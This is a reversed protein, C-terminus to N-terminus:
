NSIKISLIFIRRHHPYELYLMQYIIILIAKNISFNIDNGDGFESVM